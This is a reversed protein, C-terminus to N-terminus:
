ESDELLSTIWDGVTSSLVFVSCNALIYTNAFVFSIKAKNKKPYEKKTWSLKFVEM